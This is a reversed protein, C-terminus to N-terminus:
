PKRAIKEKLVLTIAVISFIAGSAFAIPGPSLVDPFLFGAHFGSSAVILIATLPIWWFSFKMLSKSRSTSMRLILILGLIAGVSFGYPIRLVDLTISLVNNSYHEPSSLYYTLLTKFVAIFSLGLILPILRRINNIKM